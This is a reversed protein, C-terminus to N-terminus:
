WLRDLDFWVLDLDAGRHPSLALTDDYGGLVLDLDLGANQLYPVLPPQIPESAPTRGGGGPAPLRIPDDVIAATVETRPPRPATLVKQRVFRERFDRREAVSM